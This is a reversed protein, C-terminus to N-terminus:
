DAGHQNVEAIPKGSVRYGYRRWPHDETPRHPQAVKQDVTKNTVVEAAHEQKQFVTYKMPHGKNLITIEGQANGCVTVAAKRMAYTSRTTQIQYVVKKYQLTLNKFLIQPEQRTLIHDLNDSSLLPRHADQSNQPAM